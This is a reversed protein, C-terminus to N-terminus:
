MSTPQKVKSTVMSISGRGLRQLFVSSFIKKFLKSVFVQELVMRSAVLKVRMGKLLRGRTSRDRKRM